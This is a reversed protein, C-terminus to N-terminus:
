GSVEDNGRKGAQEREIEATLYRQELPSPERVRSTGNERVVVKCATGGKGVRVAEAAAEEVTPYGYHHGNVIVVYWKDVHVAAEHIPWTQGLKELYEGATREACTRCRPGPVRGGDPDYLWRTARRGCNPSTCRTVPTLTPPTEATTM